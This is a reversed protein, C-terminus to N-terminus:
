RDSSLLVFKCLTSVSNVSSVPNQTEIIGLSAYGPCVAPFVLEMKPDHGFAAVQEFFTIRLFVPYRKEKAERGTANQFLSLHKRM